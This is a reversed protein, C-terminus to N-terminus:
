MIQQEIAKKVKVTEHAKANHLSNKGLEIKSNSSILMDDPFQVIHPFSNFM